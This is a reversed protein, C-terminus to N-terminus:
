KIYVFSTSIASLLTKAMIRWNKKSFYRSIVSNKDSNKGMVECPIPQNM